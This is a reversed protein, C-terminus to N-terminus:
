QERELRDADVGLQLVLLYLRSRDAAPVLDAAVVGLRDNLEDAMGPIQRWPAAAICWRQEEAVGRDQLFRCAPALGSDAVFDILARCREPMAEAADRLGQRQEYDDAYPKSLREVFRLPDLFADCFQADWGAFPHPLADQRACIRERIPPNSRLMSELADPGQLWKRAATTPQSSLRLYEDLQRRLWDMERARLALRDGIRTLTKQLEDVLSSRVKRRVRQLLSVRLPQALERLRDCFRGRQASTYFRQARQIRAVIRPQILLAGAGWLIPLWVLTWVIPRDVSQLALVMRGAGDWTWDPLWAGLAWGPRATPPGLGALVRGTLPALGLALLLAVLPWLWQLARGQGALWADLQERYRRHLPALRHLPDVPGPGDPAPCDQGRDLAARAWDIRERVSRLSAPAREDHLDADVAQVVRRDLDYLLSGGIAEVLARGARDLTQELALREHDYVARVREPWDQSQRDPVETLAAVLAEVGSEFRRELGSEDILRDITEPSLPALTEALRRADRDPCPQADGILADLWRRGFTAAAQRSLVTGSDELLRVGFTAAVPQALSRQQYLTQRHARLDELLLLELFLVLEDLRVQPPRHGAATRGDVLYCRDLAVLRRTRRREWGLMSNRLASRLDRATAIEQATGLSRWYDDCDLILICHLNEAGHVATKFSSSDALSELCGQLLIDLHAITEPSDARALALLDLGVPEGSDLAGQALLGDAARRVLAAVAGEGASAAVSIEDIQRYLDTLLEPAEAAAQAAPQHSREGPDPFALMAMGQLQRRGAAVGGTQSEKWRLAGRMACQHLLRRLADLGFGGFAILLTPRPM